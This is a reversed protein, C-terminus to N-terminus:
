RHGRRDPSRLLHRDIQHIHGGPDAAEDDMALVHTVPGARRYGRGAVDVAVAEVVEDDPCLAATAGAICAAICAVAVHHEALGGAKRGLDVEGRDRGTVAAEDDMARIHAILGAKRHRRGAVDVAVAKVVKDNPCRKAIASAIRVDLRAVAVHHEALGRAKRRLDVEGRHRGAVASEHDMALIHVIEGANRYGRGAVDVAVAEVIEDDPCIGGAAGAVGAGLCAVAIDHEPVGTAKRRLGIEGCDRGAVAAEDDM